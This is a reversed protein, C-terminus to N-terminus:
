PSGNEGKASRLLELWHERREIGFASRAGPEGYLGADATALMNKSPSWALHDAGSAHGRLDAAKLTAPLSWLHVKGDLSGSALHKGDPSWTLPIGWTVDARFVAIPEEIGVRWVLVGRPGAAALYERDPSWSVAGTQGGLSLGTGELNLTMAVTGSQPDLLAIKGNHSAVSLLLEPELDPDRRSWGLDQGRDFQIKHLLARSALNWLRVIGSDDYSALLGERPLWQVALIPKGELGLQPEWRQSSEQIRLRGDVLGVALRNGQPSWSFSTVKEVKELLIGSEDYVFLTRGLLAAMRSGDTSWSVQFDHLSDCPFPATFILAGTHGEWGRFTQDGAAWSFIRRGDKSWVAITDGDQEHRAQFALDGASVNWVRIERDFFATTLLLSGDPSWALTEPLGEGAHQFSALPAGGQRSWIRIRPDGEELVALKSGDPSWSIRRTWSRGGGPLVRYGWTRKLAALVRMRREASEEKELAAALLPAAYQVENTQFALSGREELANGLQINAAHTLRRAEDRQNQAIWLLALVTLLLATLASITLNRIRITRRHQRLEEGFLDAVTKQHLTAAIPRIAEAFAENYLSLAQQDRFERLDVYLPEGPFVKSLIKPIATSLDWDFDNEEERWGITGDTLCLIMTDISKHALWFEIEKKIWKSSAAGPSALIIFYDSQALAREIDRWLHPSTSLDTEDRFVTFVQQRYWPKALLQMCSQLAPALQGDVAHSYSIFARYRGKDIPKSAHLQDDTHLASIIKRLHKTM